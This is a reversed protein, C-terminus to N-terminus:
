EGKETKIKLGDESSTFVITGDLDTRYIRDTHKRIREVADKNPHNYSNGQGCMIVAYDPDTIELFERSNSTSSGHHAAKLVDIQSLRGTEIIDKESKKEIDGTFLFSDAGHTLVAAASFNNLDSYENVPSLIELKCEGIEYISGPLAATLKLGNNKVSLLFSEYFKSTPTMDDPLKPLIINEVDINDIIESAGGMHDSHPHSLLMYDIKDIGQNGIYECIKQAYEKEGTDILLTKGDSIVFTCDGQGVDIFHVEATGETHIPNSEGFLEKWDEFTFIGLFHAASLGILIVTFLAVIRATFGRSVKEKRKHEAM